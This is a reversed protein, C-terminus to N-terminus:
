CTGELLYRCNRTINYCHITILTIDTVAIVVLGVGAIAAAAPVGGIMVIATCGVFCGFQVWGEGKRGDPDVNNVPDSGCYSYPTFYERMPDASHWRGLQPDLHRFGYNYWNLGHEDILEKGNYYFLNETNSSYRL